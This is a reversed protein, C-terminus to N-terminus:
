KKGDGIIGERNEKGEEKVVAIVESNDMEM